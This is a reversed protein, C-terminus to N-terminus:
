VSGLGNTSRMSSFKKLMRSPRPWPLIGKDASYFYDRPLSAATGCSELADADAHVLGVLPRLGVYRNQITATSLTARQEIGGVYFRRRSNARLTRDSVHSAASADFSSLDLNIQRTVDAYSIDLSTAYKGQEPTIQQYYKVLVGRNSGPVIQPFGSDSLHALQSYVSAGTEFQTFHGYSGSIYNCSLNRQLRPAYHYYTNYCIEYPELSPDKDPQPFPIGAAYGVPVFGGETARTLSM